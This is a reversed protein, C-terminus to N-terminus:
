DFPPSTAICVTPVSSCKTGLKQFPYCSAPVDVINGRLSWYGTTCPTGDNCRPQTGCSSGDFCAGDPACSTGDDCLPRPPCQNSDSCLAEFVPLCDSTDACDAGDPDCGTGDACHYFGCEAMQPMGCVDAACGVCIDIPFIYWNSQVDGGSQLRGTARAQVIIRAEQTGPYDGWNSDRAGRNSPSTAAHSYLWIQLDALMQTIPGRDGIATPNFNAGYLVQLDELYLINATMAAQANAEVTAEAAVFTKQNAPLNECKLDDPVGDLYDDHEAAGKGAETDARFWCVDFGVIHVDNASDNGGITNKDDPLPLTNGVVLGMVYPTSEYGFLARPDYVGSSLHNAGPTWSCDQNPLLLSSIQLTNEEASCAGSALLSTVALLGIRKM